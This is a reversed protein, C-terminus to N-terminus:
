GRAVGAAFWAVLYSRYRYGFLALLLGCVVALLWLHDGLWIFASGLLIAATGIAVAEGFLTRFVALFATWPFFSAVIALTGASVLASGAWVTWTGISTLTGCAISCSTAEVDPSGRFWCGALLLAAMLFVPAKGHTFLAQVAQWVLGAVGAIFSLVIWRQNGELASLRAATTEIDKGGVALRTNIEGLVSNNAAVQDTLREVCEELSKLRYNTLQEGDLEGSRRRIRNDRPTEDNM